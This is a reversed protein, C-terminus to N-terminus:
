AAPEKCPSKGVHETAGASWAVHPHKYQTNKFQCVYESQLKRQQWGESVVETMPPVPPSHEMRSLPTLNEASGELPPWVAPQVQLKWDRQPGQGLPKCPLM